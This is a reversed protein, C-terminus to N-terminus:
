RQQMDICIISDYERAGALPVVTEPSCGALQKTGAIALGKPM